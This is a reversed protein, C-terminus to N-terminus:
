EFKYLKVIEITKSSLSNNDNNLYYDEMNKVADEESDFKTADNVETSFGDYGSYTWYYEETLVNKIVYFKRM